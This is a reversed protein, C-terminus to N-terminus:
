RIFEQSILRLHRAGDRFTRLKSVGIRKSYNIKVEKINLGNRKAKILIESAFEMGSSKLNLSRLKEGRIAGYGCHSDSIKLGFLRRLLFSFLPRGIRRHVWPSSGVTYQRNGIVFDAGKEIEKIFIPIDYFDYSNDSDGLVVIDGRAYKFGRIYANGYGRRKERVVFAGKERARDGTKDKSGNDVVIIEGKIGERDFVEWIKDICRVVGKEENLAPMVVSVYVM